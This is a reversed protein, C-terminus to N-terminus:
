PGLGEISALHASIEDIRASIDPDGPALERARELAALARGYNRQVLYRESLRVYYGVLDDLTEGMLTEPDVQFDEQVVPGFYARAGDATGDSSLFLSM